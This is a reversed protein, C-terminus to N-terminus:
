SWHHTEPNWTLGRADGSLVPDAFTACLGLLDQFSEPTTDALRQRRRWALWQPQATEAMGELAEALPLPNAQRHDAVTTLARSLDDAAIARHRTISEIDVFDAVDRDHRRALNRIDNYAAGSPTRRNPTPTM